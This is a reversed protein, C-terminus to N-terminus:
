LVEIVDDSLTFTFLDKVVSISWTEDSRPALLHILFLDHIQMCYKRPPPPPTSLDLCTLILISFVASDSPSFHKRNTFTPSDYCGRQM